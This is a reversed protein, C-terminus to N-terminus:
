IGPINGHDEHSLFINDALVIGQNFAAMLARFRRKADPGGTFPRRYIRVKQTTGIM